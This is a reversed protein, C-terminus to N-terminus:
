NIGQKNIGEAITDKTARKRATTKQAPTSSTGTHVVNPPTVHIGPWTMAMWELINSPRADNEWGINTVREEGIVYESWTGPRSKSNNNELSSAVGHIERLVDLLGDIGSDKRVKKLKMEEM